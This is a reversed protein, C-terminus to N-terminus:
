PLCSASSPSSPSQVARGLYMRQYGVEELQAGSEFAELVELILETQQPGFLLCLLRNPSSSEYGSWCVCCERSVCKGGSWCVCCERSM